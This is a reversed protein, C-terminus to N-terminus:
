AFSLDEGIARRLFFMQVTIGNGLFLIMFGLFRDAVKQDIKERQYVFIDVEFHDDFDAESDEKL